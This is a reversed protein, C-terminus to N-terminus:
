KKFAYLPELWPDSSILVATGIGTGDAHEFTGTSLLFSMVHNQSM